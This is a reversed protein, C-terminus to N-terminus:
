TTSLVIGGGKKIQICTNLTHSYLNVSLGQNAVETPIPIRMFQQLGLEGCSWVQNESWKVVTSLPIM